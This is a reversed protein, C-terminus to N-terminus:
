KNMLSGSLSLCLCLFCSAWPSDLSLTSWPTWSWSRLWLCIRLWQAVWPGRMLDNLIYGKTTQINLWTKGSHSRIEQLSKNTSIPKLIQCIISSTSICCPCESMPDKQFRSQHNNVIFSLFAHLIHYVHFSMLSNQFGKFHM